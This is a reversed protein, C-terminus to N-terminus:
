PRPPPRARQPAPPSTKGPTEPARRAGEGAVDELRGRTEILGADHEHSVEVPQLIMERQDAPLLARARSQVKGLQKSKGVRRSKKGIRLTRRCAHAGHQRRSAARRPPPTVDDDGRLRPGM